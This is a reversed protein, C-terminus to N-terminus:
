CEYKRNDPSNRRGGVLRSLRSILSSCFQKFLAVNLRSVVSKCTVQFVINDVTCRSGGWSQALWFESSQEENTVVHAHPAKARYFCFLSAKSQM